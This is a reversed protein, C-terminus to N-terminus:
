AFAVQVLVFSVGSPNRENSDEKGCPTLETCPAPAGEGGESSPPPNKHGFPAFLRFSLYVSYTRFCYNYAASFLLSVQIVKHVDVGKHLYCGRTREGETAGRFGKPAGAGEESPASPARCVSAAVRVCPLRSVCETRRTRM